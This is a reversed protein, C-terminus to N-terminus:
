ILYTFVFMVLYTILLFQTRPTGTTACLFHIQHPVMLNLTRDWTKSLPNLIRRQWSSHHLNCHSHHPGAAVAGILGRAQSGGDATPAARFFGFFFFFDRILFFFRKVIIVMYNRLSYMKCIVDHTLCVRIKM